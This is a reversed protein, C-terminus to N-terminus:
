RRPRPVSRSSSILVRNAGVDVHIQEVIAKKFGPVSTSVNYIGIPLDLAVYNGDANTQAVRTFGTATNTVTVTASPVVAGTSDTVAGSIEQSDVAQGRCVGASLMLSLAVILAIRKMRAGLFYTAIREASYVQEM